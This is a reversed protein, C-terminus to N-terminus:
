AVNWNLKAIMVAARTLPAIASRARNAAQITNTGIQAIRTYETTAWQTHDGPPQSNM